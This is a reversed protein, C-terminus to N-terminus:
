WNSRSNIIDSKFRGFEDKTMKGTPEVQKARGGDVITILYKDKYDTFMGQEFCDNLFKDMHAKTISLHEENDFFATYRVSFDFNDKIGDYTLSYNMFVNFISDNSFPIDKPLYMSQIPYPITSQANLVDHKYRLKLTHLSSDKEITEYDKNIKDDDYKLDPHFIDIELRFNKISNNTQNIIIPTGLVIPLLRYNPSMLYIFNRQNVVDKQKLLSLNLISVQSPENAVYAKYTYYAAVLAAIVSVTQISFIRKLWRVIASEQEKVQKKNQKKAM